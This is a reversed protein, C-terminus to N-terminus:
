GAAQWATRLWGAVEADVDGPEQLELHHTFRGPAPEVVEKWRPSADRARLAISLVLPAAPGRLYQGPAWAWAFARRRRFALQSTSLREEVPGISRLVGRAAELIAAADPHQRLYGLLTGHDAV